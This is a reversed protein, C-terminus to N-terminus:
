WAWCFGTRLERRLSVIAMRLMSRRKGYPLFFFFAFKILAHLGFLVVLVVTGVDVLHSYNM